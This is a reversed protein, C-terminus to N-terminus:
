GLAPPPLCITAALPLVEHLPEGSALLVARGNPAEAIAALSEFLHDVAGVDLGATPEDLLTLPCRAALAAALWLKHRTGTSLALLPKGLHEALGFARAHREFTAEHWGAHRARLTALLAQSPQADDRGARHDFAFVAAQWATSGPTAAVGQLALTGRRPSLTGALLALVTSKGCGMDGGLQSVGAPLDLAWGALLPPQGPYAFHLDRVRLLPTTGPPIAATHTMGVNQGCRGAGAGSM